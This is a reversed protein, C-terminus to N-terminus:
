TEQGRRLIPTDGAIILTAATPDAARAAVFEGDERRESLREIPNVGYGTRASLEPFGAAIDNM